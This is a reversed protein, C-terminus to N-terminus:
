EMGSKLAENMPVANVKKRCMLKSLEHIFMVVVFSVIIYLPNIRLPLTLGVSDDVMQLLGEMAALIMPIGIIYGIVVVIMSSNLILSDVEKKRYGFIKLLSISNRNEEIIMATVLYIVIMGIIFAMLSYMFIMSQIPVSSDKVAAVSEDISKTSYLQSQPIDLATKSWIGLYSGQPLDFKENFTELPMFIYKGIYTDAISEIKVSFIKGDQKRVINVTDGRKLKLKDALPKTISVQDASLPAGSEDVLSIMKSDPMIGCVYFDKGEGGEPLFLTASFPETGAPPTEAQLSKYKYEYQFKLTGTIGTDTLYDLSSKITFGYLM